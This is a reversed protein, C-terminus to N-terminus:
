FSWSCIRIQVILSLRTVSEEKNHFKASLQMTNLHWNRYLTTSPSGTCNACNDKQEHGVGLRMCLSINLFFFFFFLLDYFNGLNTSNLQNLILDSFFNHGLMKYMKKTVGSSRLDKLTEMPNLFNYFYYISNSLKLTHLFM